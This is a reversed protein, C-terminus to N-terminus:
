KAQAVPPTVFKKGPMHTRLEEIFEDMSNHEQRLWNLGPFKELVQEDGVCAAELQNFNPRETPDLRWLTNLFDKLAKGFLPYYGCQEIAKWLDKNDPGKIM